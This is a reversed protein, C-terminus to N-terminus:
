GRWGRLSRSQRGGPLTRLLLARETGVRSQPPSLPPEPGGADAAPGGACWSSCLLWAAAGVKEHRPHTPAASARSSVGSSDAWESGVVRRTGQLARLPRRPHPSSRPLAGRTGWRAGLGLHGGVQSRGRPGWALTGGVKCSGGGARLGGPWLAGWGPGGVGQTTM